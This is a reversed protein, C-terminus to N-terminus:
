VATSIARTTTGSIATSAKGVGLVIIANIVGTAVGAGGGGDGGRVAGTDRAMVSGGDPAAGTAIGDPM